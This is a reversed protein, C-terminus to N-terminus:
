KEWSLGRKKQLIIKILILLFSILSIFFGLNFYQDTFVFKLDHEGPLVDIEMFYLGSRKPKTKKGDLYISWRNDFMQHLVFVGGKTSNLTFDFSTGSLRNFRVTKLEQTLNSFFGYSYDEKLAAFGFEKSPIVIGSKSRVSELMSSSDIFLFLPQNNLYKLYGANFLRLHFFERTQQKNYLKANYAKGNLLNAYDKTKTYVTSLIPNKRADSFSARSKDNIIFKPFTENVLENDKFSRSVFNQHTLAINIGQKSIFPKTDISVRNFVVFFDLIVLFLIILKRIGAKPLFGLFFWAVVLFIHFLYALLYYEASYYYFFLITTILVYLFSATFNKSKNKSGFFEDVWPGLYLLLFIIPYYWYFFELRISILFPFIKDALLRFLLLKGSTDTILLFFSVVFCILFPNLVIKKIKKTLLSFILALASLSGLYVSFYYKVPLFFSMLEHYSIMGLVLPDTQPRGSFRFYLGKSMYMPLIKVAALSLALVVTLGIFRLGFKVKKRFIVDVVVYLFFLYMALITSAVYGGLISLALFLVSIWSFCNDEKRAKLYGLILYPFCCANYIQNSWAPLSLMPGSFMFCIALAVATIRSTKLELLCFYVGVGGLVIFSM